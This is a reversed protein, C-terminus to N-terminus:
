LFLSHRYFTVGTQFAYEDAKAGADLIVRTLHSQDSATTAEDVKYIQSLNIVNPYAQILDDQSFDMMENLFFTLYEWKKGYRHPTEKFIKDLNM